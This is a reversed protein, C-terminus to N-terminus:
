TTELPKLDNRTKTLVSYRLRCLTIYVLAIVVLMTGLADKSFDPDIVNFPHIIVFVLM